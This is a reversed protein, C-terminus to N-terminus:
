FDSQQNKTGLKIVMIHPNGVKQKTNADDQVVTEKLQPPSIKLTNKAM